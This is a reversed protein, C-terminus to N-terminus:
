NASVSFGKEHSRSCIMQKARELNELIDSRYFPKNIVIDAKGSADMVSGDAQELITWLIIPINASSSLRKMKEILSFGSEGPMMADTIVIDPPTTAIIKMADEANMASLLSYETKSLLLALMEHIFEDDDVLLVSLIPAPSPVGDDVIIQM